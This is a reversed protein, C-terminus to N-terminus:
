FIKGISDTLDIDEDDCEEKTVECDIITQCIREIRTVEYTGNRSTGNEIMSTVMKLADDVNHCEYLIVPARRRRGSTAAATSNNTNNTAAEGNAIKNVKVKTEELVDVM